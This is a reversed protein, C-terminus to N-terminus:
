SFGTHPRKTIELGLHRTRQETIRALPQNPDDGPIAQRGVGSERDIPMVDERGERCRQLGDIGHDAPQDVLPEECECGVFEDPVMWWGPRAQELVATLKGPKERAERRATREPIQRVHGSELPRQVGCQVGIVRDREIQRAQALQVGVLGLPHNELELRRNRENGRRVRDVLDPARVLGVRVRARDHVQPVPPPV